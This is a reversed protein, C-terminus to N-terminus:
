RTADDCPGEADATTVPLAHYRLRTRTTTVDVITRSVTATDTREMLVSIEPRDPWQHRHFRMQGHLWGAPDGVVIEEFLDRRWAEVNAEGLSSSTFLLPLSYGSDDFRLNLGDSTIVAVRDAQVAVLRFPEFRSADLRQALRLVQPLGGLSLLAPIIAGRTVPAPAASVQGERRDRNLLAIAVGV